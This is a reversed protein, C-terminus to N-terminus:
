RTAQRTCDVYHLPTPNSSLLVWKYKHLCFLAPIQAVEVGNSTKRKKGTGIFSINKKAGSSSCSFVSRSQSVHSWGVKLDIQAVDLCFGFTYNEWIVAEEVEVEQGTRRTVGEGKMILNWECRIVSKEKWRGRGHQLFHASLTWILNRLPCLWYLRLFRNNEAFGHSISEPRAEWICSKGTWFLKWM